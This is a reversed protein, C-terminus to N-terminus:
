RWSGTRPQSAPAPREAGAPQAFPPRATGAGRAMALLQAPTQADDPCVATSFQLALQAQQAVARLRQTM